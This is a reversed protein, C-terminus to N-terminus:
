LGDWFYFNKISKMTENETELSKVLGFIVIAEKKWDLNLFRGIRAMFFSEM